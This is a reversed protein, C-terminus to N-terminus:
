RYWFELGLRMSALRQIFESSFVGEESRSSTRVPAVVRIWAQKAAVVDLVTLVKPEGGFAQFLQEVREEYADALVGEKYACLANESYTGRGSPLPDGRVYFDTSVSSPIANRAAALDAFGFLNLEIRRPELIM